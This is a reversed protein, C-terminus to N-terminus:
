KKTWDRYGNVAHLCEAYLNLLYERTPDKKEHAAIQRTLKLAVEERSNEGIHVAPAEAM